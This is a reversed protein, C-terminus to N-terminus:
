CLKRVRVRSQRPLLSSRLNEERREAVVMGDDDMLELIANSDEKDLRTDFDWRKKIAKM